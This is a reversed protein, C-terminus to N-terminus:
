SRTGELTKKKEQIIKKVVIKKMTVLHIKMLKKVMEQNQNQNLNLIQLPPHHHHFLVQILFLVVSAMRRCYLVHQLHLLVNKKVNKERVIM